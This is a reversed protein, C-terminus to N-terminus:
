LNFEDEQLLWSYTFTGHVIQRLFLEDDSFKAIRNLCKPQSTGFFKLIIQSQLRRVKLM